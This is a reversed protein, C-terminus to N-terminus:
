GKGPPDTIEANEVGQMWSAIRYHVQTGGSRAGLGVGMHGVDPSQRIQAHKGVERCIRELELEQIVRAEREELRAKLEAQEMKFQLEREERERDLRAM